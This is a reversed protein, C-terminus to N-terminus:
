AICVTCSSHNLLIFLANGNPKIIKVFSRENGKMQKFRKRKKPNEDEEVYDEDSLATEEPFEKSFHKNFARELNNAM